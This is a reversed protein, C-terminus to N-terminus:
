QDEADLHTPGPCSSWLAAEYKGSTCMGSASPRKMGQWRGIGVGVADNMGAWHRSGGYRLSPPDVGQTVSAMLKELGVAQNM